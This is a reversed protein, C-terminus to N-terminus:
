TPVARPSVRKATRNTISRAVRRTAIAPMMPSGSLAQTIWHATLEGIRIISAQAPFGEEDMIAISAEGMRKSRRQRPPPTSVTRRGCREGFRFAYAFAEHPRDLITCPNGSGRRRVSAATRNVLEDLVVMVFAIMLAHAVLQQELRRPGVPVARNVAPRPQTIQQVVVVSSGRLASRAHTRSRHIDARWGGRADYTEVDRQDM